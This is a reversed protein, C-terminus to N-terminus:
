VFLFSGGYIPNFREDIDNLKEFPLEDRKNKLLTEISKANRENKESYMKVNVSPNPIYSTVQSEILEYTVNRVQEAPTDSGDINTDGKYQKINQDLKEYMKDANSRAENYLEQFFALKTQNEYEIKM